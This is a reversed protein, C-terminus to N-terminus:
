HWSQTGTQKSWNSPKSLSILLFRGALIMPYPSNIAQLQSPIRASNTSMAVFSSLRPKTSSSTRNQLSSILFNFAISKLPKPVPMLAMRALVSETSKTSIPDVIEPKAPIRLLERPPKTPFASSANLPTPNGPFTAASFLTKASLKLISKLRINSELNLPSSSPSFPNPFISALM